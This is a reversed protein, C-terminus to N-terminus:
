EPSIADPDLIQNAMNGGHPIQRVVPATVLDPRKKAAMVGREYNAKYILDVRDDTNKDRSQAEQKNRQVEIDLKRNLYQLIGSWIAQGAMLAMVAVGIWTNVSSHDGDM